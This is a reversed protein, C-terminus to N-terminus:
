MGLVKNTKKKIFTLKSIDTSKNDKNKTKNDGKTKHVSEFKKKHQHDHDSSVWRVKAATEQFKDNELSKQSVLGEMVSGLNNQDASEIWYHTSLRENVETAQNFGFSM